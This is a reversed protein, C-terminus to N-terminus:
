SQGCTSRATVIKWAAVDITVVPVANSTDVVKRSVKHLPITFRKGHREAPSGRERLCANPQLGARWRQAEGRGGDEHTRPGWRALASRQAAGRQEAGECQPNQKKAGHGCEHCM